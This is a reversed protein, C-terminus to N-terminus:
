ARKRMLMFGAVGMALFAIAAPEPTQTSIPPPTFFSGLDSEGGGTLNNVILNGAFSGSSYNTNALPALLNYNGGQNLTFTALNSANVLVHSASIGSFTFTIYNLTLATDPLNIILYNSATSGGSFNVAVTHIVSSSSGFEGAPLDLVQVGSNASSITLTTYQNVTNAVPITPTLASYQSSLNDFYNTLTTPNFAPNYAQNQTLEGKPITLQSQNTGALTVPGALTGSDTGYLNGGSVVPSGSTSDGFNDLTVNGNVQMGSVGISGGAFSATGGVYLSYGATDAQSSIQLGSSWGSGFLNGVIAATGQVDSIKPSSSTGVNGLAVLNFSFPTPIQSLDATANGAALSLGAVAAASALLIAAFPKKCQNKMM